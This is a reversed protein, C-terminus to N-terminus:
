LAREMIRSYLAEAEAEFSEIFISCPLYDGKDCLKSRCDQSLPAAPFFAKIMISWGGGRPEQERWAATWKSGFAVIGSLFFPFSLSHSRTVSWWCLSSWMRLLLHSRAASFVIERCALLAREMRCFSSWNSFLHLSCSLFCMPGFCMSLNRGQFSVFLCVFLCDIWGGPFCCCFVVRWIQKM